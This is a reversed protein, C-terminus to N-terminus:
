NNYLDEEIQITQVPVDEEQPCESNIATLIATFSPRQEPVVNWCSLMLKYLWPPCDNPMPLRYGEVFGTLM